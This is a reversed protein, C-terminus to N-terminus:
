DQSIKVKEKYEPVAAGRHCMYCDAVPAKPGQFGKLNLWKVIEMHQKATQYAIKTPAKFNSVDHCYDCTVGLQRSITQMYERYKLDADSLKEVKAKDLNSKSAANKNSSFALIAVLISSLFIVKQKTYRM